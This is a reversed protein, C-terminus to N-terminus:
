LMTFEFNKFHSMGPLLELQKCETHHMYVFMQRSRYSGFLDRGTFIKDNHSKSLKTYILM